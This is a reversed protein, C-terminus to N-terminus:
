RRDNYALRCQTRWWLASLLLAVRQRTADTRRGTSQPKNTGKLVIRIDNDAYRMSHVLVLRVTYDGGHIRFQQILEPVAQAADVGALTDSDLVFRSGSDEALPDIEKM